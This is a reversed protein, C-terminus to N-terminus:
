QNKIRQKNYTLTHTKLAKATVMLALRINIDIIIICEDKLICLEFWNAQHFSMCSCCQKFACYLRRLAYMIDALLVRLQSENEIRTGIRGDWAIGVMLRLVCRNAAYIYTIMLMQQVWLDNRAKRLGFALDPSRWTSTCTFMYGTVTGTGANLM